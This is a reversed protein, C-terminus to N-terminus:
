NKLDTGFALPSLEIPSADERDLLASPTSTSMQVPKSLSVRANLLNTNVNEQLQIVTGEALTIGKPLDNLVALEKMKIGHFQAISHLTEGKSVFHIPMDGKFVGQKPELYVFNYPLSRV